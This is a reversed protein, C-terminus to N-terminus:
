GTVRVTVSGAATGVAGDDGATVLMRARPRSPPRNTPRASATSRLRVSSRRSVAASTRAAQAATVQANVRAIAAQAEAITSSRDAAYGGTTAYADKSATLRQEYLQALRDGAGEVGADLDAKAKGIADNLAAVRDLMVDASQENYRGSEIVFAKVQENTWGYAHLGPDAVM